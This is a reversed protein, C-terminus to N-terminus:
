CTVGERRTDGDVGRVCRHRVCAMTQPAYVQLRVDRLAQAGDIDIRVDAIEVRVPGIEFSDHNRLALVHASYGSRCPASAHFGDGGELVHATAADIYVYLMDDIRGTLGIRIDDGFSLKEGISCDIVDM